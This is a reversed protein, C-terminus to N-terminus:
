KKKFFDTIGKKAPPETNTVKAPRKVSSKAPPKTTEKVKGRAAAIAKIERAEAITKRHKLENKIFDPLEELVDKDVVLDDFELLNEQPKSSTVAVDTLKSYDVKQWGDDDVSSGAVADTASSQPNSPTPINNKKVNASTTAAVSSGAPEISKEKVRDDIWELISKSQGVVGEAFRSASLGINFVPPEWKDSDPGAKNLSKAATWVINYLTAPNYSNIKLTRSSSQTTLLSFVLNEATRKNAIQDTILRKSLEKTLGDLWKKMMEVGVIANKGPFNKSVAISSQSNRLKVAEDDHGRALQWVWRAQGPCHSALADMDVGALEYMTKIKFFECLGLGLKGGLMRVDTVKTQKFVESVNEMCVITQQRPKHRACVLKALMKNPGVGGSCYFQTERHISARIKETLHAAFAMKLQEKNHRCYVDLWEKMTEERSYKKGNEDLSDTDKGNAFHTSPFISDLNNLYEDVLQEAENLECAEEVYQTLDLFAEDVSAREVTIRPDVNNLVNFVEASADRYKQIDAKDMHEGQPVFCTSLEPCKVKAEHLTMGRKVGFARAEYSVALLGGAANGSAHQVVVCPKGWLHPAERQEVQAYFCDMDLLAVVRPM